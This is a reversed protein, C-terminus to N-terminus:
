EQMKAFIIVIIKSIAKVYLEKFPLYFVGNLYLRASLIAMVITVVGITALGRRKAKNRNRLM